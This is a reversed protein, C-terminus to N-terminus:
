RPNQQMGSLRIVDEPIALAFRPDNPALVYEKGDLTRKLAIARGEKNLRKIDMWRIGRFVLERRREALVQELAASADLGSLPVYNAKKIRKIRLSNLLTLAESANGERAKAEALNLLLEDTAVGCFLSASGEYSGKFITTASTGAKFFISRRLDEAPYLTLLGDSIRARAQTLQAPTSFHSAYIVEPNFQVLPFNATTSLSNYDILTSNIALGKSAYEGALAYRGMYLYLRSLLGYAAGKSGRMVHLPKEPLLRAAELLDTEIQVFTQALSSRVSRTNYDSDLRLPLGLASEATASDYALCWIAVAQLYCKARIFLSQGKIDEYGAGLADKSSAELSQLVTNALFVPQFTDRWPNSVPAFINDAEWLYLRREQETRASWDASTLFYDDSSAEGSGAERFNVTPYYDMLAQMDKLSTVLSLSSDPKDELLKKCSMLGPITTIALIAVMVITINKRTKMM